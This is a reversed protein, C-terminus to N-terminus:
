MFGPNPAVVQRYERYPVYHQTDSVAKAGGFNPGVHFEAPEFVLTRTAGPTRYQPYQSHVVPAIILMAFTFAIAVSCIGKIDFKKDKIPEM